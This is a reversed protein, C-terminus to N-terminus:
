TAVMVLFSVLREGKNANQAPVHLPEGVVVCIKSLASTQNTGVRHWVEQGIRQVRAVVSSQRLDVTSPGIKLKVVQHLM